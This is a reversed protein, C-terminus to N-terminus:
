GLFRPSTWQGRRSPRLAAGVRRVTTGSGRPAPLLREPPHRDRPLASRESGCHERRGQEERGLKAVSVLAIYAGKLLFDSRNRFRSRQGRRGRPLPQRAPPQLSLPRAYPLGVQSPVSAAPSCRACCPAPAAAARHGDPPARSCPPGPHAQGLYRRRPRQPSPLPHRPHPNPSTNAAAPQGWPSPPSM